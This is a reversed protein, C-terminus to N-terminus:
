KKIILKKTAKTEGESELTYFYVGDKLDQVDIKLVREYPNLPYNRATTGLLDHLVIKVEKSPDAIFYNIIAVSSAPNPYIDEVEITRNLVSREQVFQDSSEQSVVRSSLLVLFGILLTTKNM